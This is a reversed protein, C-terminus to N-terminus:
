HRIRIKSFFRKKDVLVNVTRVKEDGAHYTLTIETWDKSFLKNFQYSIQSFIGKQVFVHVKAETTGDQENFLPAIRIYDKKNEKLIQFHENELSFDKNYVDLKM